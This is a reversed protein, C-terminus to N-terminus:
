VPSSDLGADPDSGPWDSALAWTRKIRSHWWGRWHPLAKAPKVIVDSISYTM